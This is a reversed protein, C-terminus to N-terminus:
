LVSITSRSIPLPEKTSALDHWDLDEVSATTLQKSMPSEHSVPNTTIVILGEFTPPTLRSHGPRYRDM